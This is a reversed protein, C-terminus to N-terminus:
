RRARADARVRAGGGRARRVRLLFAPELLRGETRLSAPRTRAVPLVVAHMCLHACAARTHAGDSARLTRAIITLLCRCTLRALEKGTRSPPAAQLPIDSAHTSLVTAHMCLHTCAVRACVPAQVCRGHEVRSSVDVRLALSDRGEPSPPAARLPINSASRSLLSVCACPHARTAAVLVTLAVRGLCAGRPRCTRVQHMGSTSVPTYTRPCQHCPTGLPAVHYM